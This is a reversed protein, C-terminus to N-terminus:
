SNYKTLDLQKERASVILTAAIDGTDNSVSNGFDCLANVAFIMTMMEVPLGLVSLLAVQSAYSVGSVGQTALSLMLVTFALNVLLIPDNVTLGCMKACVLVTIMSAISTGDMNITSGLPISFSYIKKPVGFKSCEEMSMQIGSKGSINFATDLMYPAHRRIFRFPNVRAFLRILVLYICIMIFYGVYVAASTEVVSLLSEVGTSVIVSFVSCFTLVPIGKSIMSMIEGVMENSSNLFTLVPERYNKIRGAAIGIVVSLLVIQLMNNEAFSLVANSPFFAKLSELISVTYGPTETGTLLVVDEVGPSFLSFMGLGVFIAIVSTFVYTLLIKGGVRGVESFNTYQSLSTAISFFVLPGVIMELLATMIDSIPSLAYTCIAGCIEAPVFFRFIPGLFVALMLALLLPSVKKKSSYDVLIRNVGRRYSYHIASALSNLVIRRIYDGTDEDVDALDLNLKSDTITADFRPGKATITIHKKWPLDVIGYSISEVGEIETLSCFLEEVSLTTKYLTRTKVKKKKLETEIDIIAASISEANPQIVKKNM